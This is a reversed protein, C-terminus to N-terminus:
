IYPGVEILIEKIKQRVLLSLQFLEYAEIKIELMESISAAEDESNCKM